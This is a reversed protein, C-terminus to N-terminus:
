RQLPSEGAAHGAWSEHVYASQGLPMAYVSQKADVASGGPNLGIFAIRAGDLTVEPSGLLRWGMTNGSNRYAREIENEM